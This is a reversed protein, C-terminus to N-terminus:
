KENREKKHIGGATVAKLKARLFLFLFSFYFGRNQKNRRLQLRWTQKIPHLQGPVPTGYFLMLPLPVPLFNGVSGM